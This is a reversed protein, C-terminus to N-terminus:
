VLAVADRGDGEVFSCGTRITTATTTTTALLNSNKTGFVLRVLRQAIWARRVM